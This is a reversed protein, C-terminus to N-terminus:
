LGMSSAWLLLGQVPLDLPATPRLSKASGARECVGAKMAEMRLEQQRAQIPYACSEKSPLACRSASLVQAEVQTGHTDCVAAGEHLVCHKM